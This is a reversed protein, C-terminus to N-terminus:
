QRIVTDLYADVDGRSFRGDAKQVIRSALEERTLRIPTADDAVIWMLDAIVREKTPANM